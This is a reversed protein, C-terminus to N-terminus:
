FFFNESSDNEDTTWKPANKEWTEAEDSCRNLDSANQRWKIATKQLCVDM